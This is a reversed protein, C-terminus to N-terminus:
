PIELLDGVNILRHNNCEYENILLLGGLCNVLLRDNFIEVIEGYRANHYKLCRDFIQAKWIFIKRKNIFCFAGPYPHTVARILNYIIDIDMDQFSVMGDDATRKCYYSEKGVQERTTVNNNAIKPIYELLAKKAVIEGKFYLTEIDDFENIDFQEYYFVDGDDKGPKIFFLHYIFRKKGEILSWNFPSRGRGRPLFDSSGHMGIAGYSLTKIVEEPFLRQWGGQLLLDFRNKKFFEIDEKDKLDFRKPYYIDISYEKALSSYDYYGSVSYKEEQEPSLIVFCDFQIGNKLLYEVIGKGAIHNGCMVIKTDTEKNMSIGKM